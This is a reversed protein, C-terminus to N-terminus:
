RSGGHSLSLDPRLRTQTEFIRESFCRGCRACADGSSGPRANGLALRGADVPCGTRPNFPLGLTRKENFVVAADRTDDDFSTSLFSLYARPHERVLAEAEAVFNPSSTADLSIQLFVGDRRVIKKAQDLRRTVIWLKLDPCAAVAIENCMVVSEPFLDGSGNIRLFRLERDFERKFRRAAKDHEILVRYAAEIPNRRIIETNRVRKRRSKTWTAAANPTGAYCVAMCVPTPHCTMSIAVDLSTTAKANISLMSHQKLEEDTMAGVERILAEDKARLRKFNPHEHGNPHLVRLRSSRVSAKKSITM